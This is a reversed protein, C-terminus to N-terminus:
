RAPNDCYLLREIILYACFLLGGTIVILWQTRKELDKARWTMWLALALSIEGLSWVVVEYYDSSPTRALYSGLIIATSGLALFTRHLQTM